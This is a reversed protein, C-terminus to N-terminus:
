KPDTATGWVDGGMPRIRGGVKAGNHYGEREPIDDGLRPEALSRQTRQNNEDYEVITVDMNFLEMEILKKVAYDPAGGLGCGILPLGIKQGKFRQNVKRLCTVFAEFDFPIKCGPSPLGPYLQTYLNLIYFHRDYLLRHWYTSYQGMLDEKDHTHENVLQDIKYADPFIDKIQKAIGAGMNAQCNCGHAIVDYNGELALTILNGKIIKTTM